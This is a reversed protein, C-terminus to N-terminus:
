RHCFELFININPSAQWKTVSEYMNSQILHFVNKSNGKKTPKHELMEQFDNLADIQRLQPLLVFHDVISPFRGRFWFVHNRLRQIHTTSRHVVFTHKFSSFHISVSKQDIKFATPLALLSDLPSILSLPSFITFLLIRMWRKFGCLQM